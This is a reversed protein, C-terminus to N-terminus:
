VTRHASTCRRIAITLIQFYWLCSMFTWDWCVHLLTIPVINSLSMSFLFSIFGSLLWSKTATVKATEAMSISRIDKGVHVRMVESQTRVTKNVSTLLDHNANTLIQLLCFVADPMIITGTCYALCSRRHRCGIKGYYLAFLSICGYDRILVLDEDWYYSSQWGICTRMDSVLVYGMGCSCTFSGQTNVCSHGCNATRRSCEDIDSCGFRNLTVDM